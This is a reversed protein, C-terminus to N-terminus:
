PSPSTIWNKSVPIPWEGINCDNKKFIGPCIKIFFLNEYINFNFLHTYMLKSNSWGPSPTVMSVMRTWRLGVNQGFNMEQLMKKASQIKTAENGGSAFWM